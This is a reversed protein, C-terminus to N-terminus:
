MILLILTEGDIELLLVKTLDLSKLLIHNVMGTNPKIKQFIMKLLVVFIKNFKFKENSIICKTSSVKNKNFDPQNTVVYLLYNKRM